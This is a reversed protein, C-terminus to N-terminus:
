LSCYREVASRYLTQEAPDIKEDDSKPQVIKMGPTGPTRFSYQKSTQIFDKFSKELRKVLHPQGLWARTRNKNFIVECSLYDTLYKEVKVKLGAEQLKKITDQLAAKNGIAYCDDVYVAIIVLGLKTDNRTLLCPEAKSQQFGITKFVEVLKKFFQRASQVLGYLDKKLLLCEGPKHDFGSPCDMYIEEDLEGHLFATEVDIIKASLKWIMQLVIMIRFAVDNIVPIYAEMFDIRPVQIYGCAVLRSRSTGNRKIDFVWKHKVCRRNPPISTRPVVNWVEYQKM